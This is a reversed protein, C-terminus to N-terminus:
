RIKINLKDQALMFAESALDEDKAVDILRDALLLKLLERRDCNYFDSLLTVQEKNPLFRGKEIKCYTGTDIDLAAAARRQPQGADERLRKLKDGLLM